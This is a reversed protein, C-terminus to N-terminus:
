SKLSGNGQAREAAREAHRIRGLAEGFLTDLQELRARETRLRLQREKTLSERQAELQERLSEADGGSKTAQTELEKARAAMDGRRKEELAAHRRATARENAWAGLGTVAAATLVALLIPNAVSGDSILVILLAAAAVALLVLALTALRRGM